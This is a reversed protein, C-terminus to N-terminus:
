DGVQPVHVLDPAAAPLDKQLGFGILGGALAIAATLPFVAAVGWRDAVPGSVLPGLAGSSFIFALALGSALGMGGPLAKQALVLVVSFASGVLIGSIIILAYIWASGGTSGILSLPVAALILATIVVVRKGFRDALYGGSINGIAAGGMFLAAIIGYISPSSGLDALYKPLFANVNQQAVSQFTTVLILAALAWGQTKRQPRSARDVPKTVIPTNIVPTKGPVKGLEIWAYVAVPVALAVVLYIGALGFLELLPGGLIPGFFYGLQGFAFFFAAATAERGALHTGGEITAQMAGAPHFIGSGLSGIVLLVLATPGSFTAALAFFSAMWAVGGAVLWRAGWRDALYGFVPQTLAGIFVYVTNIQGLTSNSLSLLVAFYTLLVARNGNFIDIILHGLAVSTFLRNRLINM